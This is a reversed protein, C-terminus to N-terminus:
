QSSTSSLFPTVVARTQASTVVPYKRTEIVMFLM